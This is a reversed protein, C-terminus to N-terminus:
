YDPGSPTSGGGPLRQGEQQQQLLDLIEQAEEFTLADDLGRLAEELARQVEAGPTQQGPTQVGDAPQPSGQGPQAPQDAPQEPPADGPQGEQGPQQDQGPEGEGGEGPEEGPQQGPEDLQGTLIAYTLELNYKTDGDKSDLLLANRYADYALEYEELAFYHNGLAYYTVAGIADDTPPLARRTEEIAREYEGAAHQANGANYSLEALDPRQAILEHYIELAEQYGGSSYAENAEQNRSRITESGSCAGILLALLLMAMGPQPRLRPLRLSRLASARFPVFWSAALLALAAAVFVQFRQVPISQTQDALPTRELRALDERFGLLNTDSDIRIYRGGGADAAARLNAENLRTVVPRGASDVKTIANGLRNIDVLQSGEATGVGATLILIDNESLARAKDAFTNAFDEGDSVVLIAKGASESSALILEAQDFAAGLDSGTRLLSSEGGARNILETMAAADTTLPSRLIASGAFIVLGFRNGREAELLRGLQAQALALRTPEADTGQMSQSVDLVVVLDVGDRPRTLETRGWEPRAIAFVILVAAELLFITSAISLRTSWRAAQAGAFRSRARTRWRAIGWAIGAMLVVILLLGFYGPQAFTM